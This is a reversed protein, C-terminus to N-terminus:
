FTETVGTAALRLAREAYARCRADGAGARSAAWGCSALGRVAVCRMVQAVEGPPLSRETAYGELLADRLAFFDAREVYSILATALDYARLGVGCDDFDILSLNAGTDLVNDALLDAHIMGTDADGQAHLALRLRDRADILAAAESASLTPNQWFRGWIPDPGLLTDADWRPFHDLRLRPTAAALADAATHFRAVEAGLAKLRKPSPVMARGDVWRVVSAWRGDAARAVLAKALTRRPAPCGIGQAALAETWRLEATIADLSRYGPRHLRLAVRAGASDRAAYIANEREAVPQVEAFAGWAALTETAVDAGSM